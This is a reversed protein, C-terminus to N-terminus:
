SQSWRIKPKNKLASLAASQIVKLENLTSEIDQKQKRLLEIRESVKNSLLQVQTSQDADYDYLNLFSKIDDLSFGLRKGRLILRMRANDQYNYIRRNGVRKPRILNKSEYFRLTRASVGLRHGLETATYLVDKM